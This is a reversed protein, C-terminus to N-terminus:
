ESKRESEAAESKLGLRQKLSRVLQEPTQTIDLAPIEESEELASFQSALLHAKMFHGCRGTLRERILSYDGRLHFLRVQSLGQLLRSRSAQSLVSAAIVANEGRLDIEHLLEALAALWPQRDEESLPVGSSMKAINAPSHFADGEYFSWGLDAALLKGVTTKGAGSVGMLLVIM